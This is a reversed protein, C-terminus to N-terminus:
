VSEKNLLNERCSCLIISINCSFHAVHMIVCVQLYKSKEIAYVKEDVMTQGFLYGRRLNLHGLKYNTEANITYYLFM